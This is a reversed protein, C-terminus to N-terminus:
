AHVPERLRRYVPLHREAVDQWGFRAAVAPGRARLASAVDPRLSQRMAAAISSSNSPDCWLADSPDLYDVFPAIRSVVVPRGSAMAELVCLGFGEKVSAFVLASALRYLGPMDADAVPGLLSVASAGERLATLERGFAAQYAHHDLLSAGGAIVLRADPRARHIEVFAQLIRTTNKRAEVGGISLFVPGSGLGLRQALEAESGDLHPSYRCADVGNGGVVAERGFRAILTERWLASVVMLADAALISRTQRRVLRPDAFDDIHHVTRVFAPILGEEKLTALANAGIGDHAHYLDFARNEPRRFWRIYDDIRQEVMDATDRPAPEVPFAIAACRPKRFFGCGTADPAHLVTQVGLDELAESLNMAHVAGGRPLTSHTLMAVRFPRSMGSASRAGFGMLREEGFDRLLASRGESQLMVQSGPKVAGISAAHLGRARFLSLAPEVNGPAVSLLFGFSPFTKLWRELPVGPPPEIADLDLAISVGSSEALMVATGPVGGQSIDKAARALGKEALEPLLALDARLRESPAELAAQFNDFPERYAGRKDVVMVLADGPQADFSTLLRAGARGLVAVALHTERNHLNTHGGVIPVGYAGAAARLGDLVAKAGEEGEAWVVDVVALPRGGMAAVDSLNVMVGCWGAFWPDADVFASIFGEAAFLLHGDGDPIAACDDGVPIAGQALGLRAAVIGIDAKAALAPSAKLREALAELAGADM